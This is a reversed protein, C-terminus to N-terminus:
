SVVIPATVENHSSILNNLQKSFDTVESPIVVRLANKLPQEVNSAFWSLLDDICYRLYMRNTDSFPDTTKADLNDSM